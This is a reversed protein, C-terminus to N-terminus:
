QGTLPNASRSSVNQATVACAKGAAKRAEAYRNDNLCMLASATTVDNLVVAVTRVTERLDCGTDLVSGGLSAGFKIVQIGATLAIRCPATPLAVGGIVSSASADTAEFKDGQVTVNTRQKSNNANDTSQSQGQLQGQVQGQKNQNNTVVKNSNANINANLNKNSNNVNANATPKNNTINNTTDGFNLGTANAGMSLTLLAVALLKNM